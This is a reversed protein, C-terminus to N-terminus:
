AEPSWLRRDSLNNCSMAEQHSALTLKHGLQMLISDSGINSAFLPDRNSAFQCEVTLVRCGGGELVDRIIQLVLSDDDVVLITGGTM